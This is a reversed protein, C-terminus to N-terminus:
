AYLCGYEGVRIRPCATARYYGQTTRQMRILIGFRSSDELGCALVAMM